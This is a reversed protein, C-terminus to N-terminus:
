KKENLAQLIVECAFRIEEESICLPPAIRLAHPAYLFWDTFVGHDLCYRIVDKCTQEDPLHVALLLGMGTVESIEQHVLLQRFLQEKEPIKFAPLGSSTLRVAETAAACIVPHGGFTTIHGLVPNVSLVQMMQRNAIFAGMPMGGGLAKGLMLIDPVIGYQEFAFMTGTRGMGTQIEDIILLAGTETCFERLRKVYAPDSPYVGKEAQILEVVVAALNRPLRDTANLDNQEFFHIDPLLPKYRNSFYEHSMLSLPGQSSGHYALTQAAFGSRGTFRKALKMAGDVAESGSNVFYFNDLEAPLVRGLEQALRVQPQQVVEGYVMLHMHRAAQEQVARVIDPQGHGLSSVSIGAILDLYKRGDPSYLWCGEAREVELLLPSDSTQALNRLFLERNTSHM